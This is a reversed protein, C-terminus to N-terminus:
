VECMRVTMGPHLRLQVEAGASLNFKDEIKFAKYPHLLMVHLLSVPQHKRGGTCKVEFEYVLKSTEQDIQLWFCQGNCVLVCM